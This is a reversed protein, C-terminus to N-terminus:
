VLNSVKCKSEELIHLRCKETSHSSERKSKSVNFQHIILFFMELIRRLRLTGRNECEMGSQDHGLSGSRVWPLGLCAVWPGRNGTELGGAGRARANSSGNDLLCVVLSASPLPRAVKKFGELVGKLNEYRRFLDSLSREVSNLDALAQEKEMTLQQFSKQSTMSTRQEDETLWSWFCRVNEWCVACLRGGSGGPLVSPRPVWCTLYCLNWGWPSVKQRPLCPSLGPRPFCLRSLPTLLRQWLLSPLPSGSSSLAHATRRGLRWTIRVASFIMEGGLNICSSRVSKPLRDKCGLSRSIRFAVCSPSASDKELPMSPDPAPFAGGAACHPRRQTSCLRGGPPVFSSTLGGVRTSSSSHRGDELLFRVVTTGM